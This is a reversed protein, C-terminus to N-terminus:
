RKAAGSASAVAAVKHFNSSEATIKVNTPSLLKRGEFVGTSLRNFWVNEDLRTRELTYDFKRLAGLVGGWLTVESNLAVEVRAIAFEQEDIWIKGSLQNMLKDALQKVPLKGNAPRFTILCAPRGNFPKREVLRFQYRTLLDPTIFREWNDDRQGSKSATLNKRQQAAAEEEKRLAAGSIAKGNIKIQQVSGLGAEFLLTKEKREKVQGDSDRDEIVARKTYGYRTHLDQRLDAQVRAVAQKMVEDATLPATAGPCSGGAVSLLVAGLLVAARRGSCLSMM